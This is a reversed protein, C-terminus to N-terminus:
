QSQADSVFRYILVARDPSRDRGFETPGSVIVSASNSIQADRFAQLVWNARAMALERNSGFKKQCDRRLTDRDASAVILLVDSGKDARAAKLKAIANSQSQLLSAREQDGVKTCTDSPDAVGSPFPRVEALLTM